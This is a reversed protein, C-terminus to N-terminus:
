RTKIFTSNHKARVCLEAACGMYSFPTYLVCSSARLQWRVKVDSPHHTSHLLLFWFVRFYPFYYSSRIPCLFQFAVVIVHVRVAYHISSSRSIFFFFHYRWALTVVSFFIFFVYLLSTSVCVYCVTHPAHLNVKWVFVCVFLRVFTLRLPPFLAISLYLYSQIERAGSEKGLCLIYVQYVVRAQNWVFKFCGHMSLSKEWSLNEKSNLSLKSNSAQEKTHHKWWSHLYIFRM